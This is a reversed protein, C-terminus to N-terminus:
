KNGKEKRPQPKLASLSLEAMRPIPVAGREWRSITMVDVDLLQALQTQSYSKAIRMKRFGKASMSPSYANHRYSNSRVKQKESTGFSRASQVACIPGSALLSGFQVEGVPLHSSQQGAAGQGVARGNVVRRNWQGGNQHVEINVIDKNLRAFYGELANTCNPLIPTRLIFLMRCENAECCKTAPVGM